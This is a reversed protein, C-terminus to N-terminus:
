FFHYFLSFVYQSRTGYLLTSYFHFYHSSVDLMLVCNFLFTWDPYLHSLTLLLGPTSVKDTFIDLAAGFRSTQRWSRAVHGDLVDMSFSITYCCLFVSSNIRNFYFGVFLLLIRTYGILNAYYSFIKRHEGEPRTLGANSKAPRDKM